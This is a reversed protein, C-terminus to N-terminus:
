RTLDGVAVDIVRHQQQGVGEVPLQLVPFPVAHRTKRAYALAGFGPLTALRHQIGHLLYLVTCPKVIFTVQQGSALILSSSM